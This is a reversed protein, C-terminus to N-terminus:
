MKGKIQKVVSFESFDISKSFIDWMTSDVGDVTAVKQNCILNLLLNSTVNNTNTQKMLNERLTNTITRTFINDARDPEFGLMNFIKKTVKSTLWYESSKAVGIAFASCWKEKSKRDWLNWGLQQMVEQSGYTFMYWFITGKKIGISTAIPSLVGAVVSTWLEKDIGNFTDSFTGVFNGLFNFSDEENLSPNENRVCELLTNYNKESGFVQIMGEKTKPYKIKIQQENNIELFTKM